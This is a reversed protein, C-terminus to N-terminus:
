KFGVKEMVVFSLCDVISYSQDRHREFYALAEREEEATAHHVQGFSGSQLQRGVKVALDHWIGPDRHSRKSVLTITEARYPGECPM